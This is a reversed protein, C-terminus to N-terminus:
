RLVEVEMLRAMTDGPPIEVGDKEAAELYGLIAEQTMELAEEQTEGYTSLWNLAPVHTVWLQEQEDWTLIITFKQTAM